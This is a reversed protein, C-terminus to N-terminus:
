AAQAKKKTSGRLSWSTFKQTMKKLTDESLNKRSYILVDQEGTKKWGHREYVGFSPSDKDILNFLIGPVGKKDLFKNIAEVARSGLRRSRQDPRVWVTDVFYFRIPQSFYILEAQGVEKGDIELSLRHHPAESGLLNETEQPKLWIEKMSKEKGWKVILAHFENYIRYDRPLNSEFLERIKDYDAKALKKKGHAMLLRRTYADVVFIPQNFAYLLISDATEQGVGWLSLLEERSPTKKHELFFKAIIKLKKAKQRYYGSSRICNELKRIPTQVVSEADLFNKEYLCEVAKEVNTWATNQTLVAGVIIEFRPDFGSRKRGKHRPWWHQPGFQNLLQNYVELPKM